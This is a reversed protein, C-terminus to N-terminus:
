KSDRHIDDKCTGTLNFSGIDSIVACWWQGNYFFAEKNCENCIAKGPSVVKGVENRKYKFSDVM